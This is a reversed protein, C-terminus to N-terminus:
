PTTEGHLSWNWSQSLTTGPASFSGAYALGDASIPRASGGGPDTTLLMFELYKDQTKGNDQSHTCSSYTVNIPTQPDPVAYFTYTNPAEGGPGSGTVIATAM